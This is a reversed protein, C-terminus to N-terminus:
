GKSSFFEDDAGLREFIESDDYVSTGANYTLTGSVTRSAYVKALGFDALKVELFGQNHLEMSTSESVPKSFINFTKSDRHYFTRNVHVYRMGEAVQLMIDIAVPLAFCMPTRVM